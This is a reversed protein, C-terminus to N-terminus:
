VSTRVYSFKSLRMINPAEMLASSTIDPFIKDWKFLAAFIGSYRFRDQKSLESPAQEGVLLQMYFLHIIPKDQARKVVVKKLEESLRKIESVYTANGM